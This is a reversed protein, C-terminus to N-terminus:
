GVQADEYQWIKNLLCILSDGLIDNIGKVADLLRGRKHQLFELLHLGVAEGGVM